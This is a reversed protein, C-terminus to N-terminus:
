PRRLPLLLLAAGPLRLLPLRARLLLLPPVRRPQHQAPPLLPLPPVRRPQLLRALLLLPLHRVPRRPLASLLPLAVAPLPRLSASKSVPRATMRLHMTTQKM